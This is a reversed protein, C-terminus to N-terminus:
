LLTSVSSNVKVIDRIAPTVFKVVGNVKWANSLYWSELTTSIESQYGDRQLLVVNVKGALKESGLSWETKVKGHDLKLKSGTWQDPWRM